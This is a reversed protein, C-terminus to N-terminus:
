NAANVTSELQEGKVRNVNTVGDIARLKRMLETLHTTDNVYVKITGEFTGDDTDFSISRMNVNYESSIVKTVDNVLGVQDIGIIKIAAM